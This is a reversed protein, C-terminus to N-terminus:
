SVTHSAINARHTNLSRLLLGDMHVDRRLCHAGDNSLFSLVDFLQAAEGSGRDLDAAPFFVFFLCTLETGKLDKVQTTELCVM